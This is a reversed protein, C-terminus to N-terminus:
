TNALTFEIIIDVVGVTSTLTHRVDVGEGERLVLPELDTDGTAADFMCMFTPVCEFEDWTSTSATPEDNSWAFRRLVGSSTVTAGHATLVQAPMNESATDHKTPTVSTGGSQATSRRVEFMTLVGTVPTTQNNLVYVRKVRLVRGSGSGNFIGAMSKNNGFTVGVFAAVYTQAM